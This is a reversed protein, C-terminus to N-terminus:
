GTGYVPIAAGNIARSAESALFVIVDAIAEPQVWRSTNAKPMSERNQPTDITSPVVCNVRINDQKLEDSLSETLRVVASKSISYPAAKARGQLGTRSAVHIISGGQQELMVPIVARSIIFATRANLNLMADWSELSTEHVPQGGAYGGVCNALVDIRGFRRRAETVMAEVAAVDNLDVSAALFCRPSDVLEPFVQALRDPARDVLVLRAGTSQFARAVAQGLNGVSGTVMVVQDNLDLMATGKKSDAVSRDLVLRTREMRDAGPLNRAIELFTKCTEPHRKAPALDALPVAIHPYNLIDPDPIHRKGLELIQDGYLAIDLDITRPANRDGSRVRGLEQEIVLLVRSKLEEPSLATQVWAAANLFDPQDTKGVPATRYVPSVGIVRVRAALRRVAELINRESDINSGLAIFVDPM